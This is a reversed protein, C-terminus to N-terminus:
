TAVSRLWTAVLLLWTAVLWLRLSLLYLPWELKYTTEFEFNIHYVNFITHDHLTHRVTTQLTETTFSSKFFQIHINREVCRNSNEAYIVVVQRWALKFCNTKQDLEYHCKNCCWHGERSLWAKWSKRIYVLTVPSNNRPSLKAGFSSPTFGFYDVKCGIKNHCCLYQAGCLRLCKTFVGHWGRWFRFYERLNALGELNTM